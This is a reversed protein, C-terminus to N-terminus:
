EEQVEPIDRWEYGVMEGEEWKFAGQLIIDGNKKRFLRYMVPTKYEIRAPPIKDLMASESSSWTRKM